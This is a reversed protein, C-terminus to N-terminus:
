PLRGLPKSQAARVGFSQSEFGGEMRHGFTAASPQYGPEYSYFRIAGKSAAAVPPPPVVSASDNGCSGCCCAFASSAGSLGLGFTAISMAILKFM